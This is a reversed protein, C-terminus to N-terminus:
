RWGLRSPSSPPLMVSVVPRPLRTSFRLVTERRLHTTSLLKLVSPRILSTFLAVLRDERETFPSLFEWPERCLSVTLYPETIEMTTLVTSLVNMRSRRPPIPAGYLERIFIPLVFIMMRITFSGCSLMWVSPLTTSPDQTLLTCFILKVDEPFRSTLTDRRFREELLVTDMCEWPELTCLTHTLRQMLLQAASITQGLFM